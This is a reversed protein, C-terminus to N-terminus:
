SHAVSLMSQKWFDADPALDRVGNIASQAGICILLLGMIRSLSNAGNVDLFRRLAGAERLALRSRSRRVRHAVLRGSPCRDRLANGAVKKRPTTDVEDFGSTDIM